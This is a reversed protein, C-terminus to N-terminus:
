FNFYWRYFLCGTDNVYIILIKFKIYGSRLIRLVYACSIYNLIEEKLVAKKKKKFKSGDNTYSVLFNKHKIEWSFKNIM